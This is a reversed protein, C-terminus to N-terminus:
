EKVVVAVPLTDIRDAQEFSRVSYRTGDGATLRDYPELELSEGIIVQFVAQSNNEADIAFEVPQIRVPLATTVYTWGVIEPTEGESWTPREIDVRKGCGYAIRLERTECRYRQLRALHEVVLITWHRGAGDIVVDGVQPVADDALVVQWEADAQVVAGGSPEAERNMVSKRWASAVVVTTSNGRRRLTATVTGDVVAFDSAVDLEM